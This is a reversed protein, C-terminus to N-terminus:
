VGLDRALAAAEGRNTVGLKALINSVHVSATKESIFLAEGIERNTRGQALLGLVETERATLGALGRQVPAGPVKVRHRRAVTDLDDLLTAAGLDSACRHAAALEAALDGSGAHGLADVLRVRCYAAQEAYGREDMADRALRWLEPDHRGAVRAVEADVLALWGDLNAALVDNAGVREEALLSRIRALAERADESGAEAAAAAVRAVLVLGPYTNADGIFPELIDLADGVEPRGVGLSILMRLGVQPGIAQPDRIMPALQRALALHEEAEAYRGEIVDIWASSTHFYQGNIGNTWGTRVQLLVSEAGRLRGARLHVDVLEMRLWDTMGGRVRHREAYDLGERATREALPVDNGPTRLTSTMNIYGRVADGGAGAADAIAVADRLLELGEELHGLAGLSTGLSNQARSLEVQAGLERAIEVGRRGPEVSEEFRGLLMLLRSRWALAEAAERTRDDGLMETAKDSAAVADDGRGNMWYSESLESWLGGVVVRDAVPDLTGIARKLHGVGASPDGGHRSCHSAARLLEWVAPAEQAAEPSIRDRLEAAGELHTQAESFAFLAHARRGARVLSRFALDLDHAALAHHALESDVSDAGGAGLAPEELLADAFARHLRSREGPLLQEHVAEQLLAHRFRFGDGDPVLAQGDIAARLGADLEDLGLTAVVELLRHDVRRGAAAAIRLVEKAADPLGDIRASLIDRLTLPVREDDCAAFLEEAFFPNGESRDAVQSVIEPPVPRGHIATLLEAVEQDTLPQLEVREVHALRGLEALVPRLPHSRRMEDSRYTAVLLVRSGVLNRALWTVLDLTSRDAWHLDEIAVVVPGDQSLRELVARFSEFMSLQGSWQPDSAGQPRGPLFGALEPGALDAARDDGLDRALQRLIGAVPALPMVAEGLELCGGQLRVAGDARDLFEGVLRTKGVGAEGGVVVLRGDGQRALDFGAALARLPEERGVMVGASVRQSM